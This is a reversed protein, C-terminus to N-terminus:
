PSRKQSGVGASRDESPSRRAGRTADDRAMATWVPLDRAVDIREMYELELPSREAPGAALPDRAQVLADAIHVAALVDLGTQPVRWPFHHYAVAEVLTFPLGWIGLLYAGVEAHTVGLVEQEAVHVPVGDRRAKAQIESVKDPVGLALLVSGVDHLLGATFAEDRRAPDAVIRRALRATAFSKEQIADLSFGPTRPAADLASFLRANLALTRVLDLGLYVVAAEIGSIKRALGFYSSNVVQLVKASLAPDTELLAAVTRATTDPDAMATTLEMYIRPVSPLQVTRGVVSRLTEDALLDRVHIARELVNILTSRECPKVLFQHSVPLARLVAEREAHGSLVIRIVGPFEDKVHGLLTAGDMGPMRMDSVIVDVPAARLHALAAEGSEVFTAEWQRRHKRLSCRLGELVQADDDVFLLRKM